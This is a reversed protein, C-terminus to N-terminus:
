SPTGVLRRLAPGLEPHEFSFGAALLRRPLVRAGALLVEDGMGGPFLRAVFAPLVFPAPRRLTAALVRTFEANSVPAPSTLNVPGAVDGADLLFRMARVVDPLAIWSVIQRGNGVRGGLGLRFLPLLAGLFGGAPSLVLGTRMHVLRIGAERVPEAAAEWAVAVEPMFGAGPGTSEDVVEEPPRNGYCGIASAALFVRPPPDLGAVAGALLATGDIRSRAIREKKRRTWLGAITEGALHVVADHGRLCAVDILGAAPDWRCEGPGRIPRRVLRTVRHGASEVERCFASGIM